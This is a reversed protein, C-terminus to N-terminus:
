VTPNLIDYGIITSVVQIIFYAAVIILLGTVAATLAGKSQAAKEGEMHGAHQIFKFGTVIVSVFAIIGAITFVNPLLINILGALSSFNNAPPFANQINVQAQASRILLLTMCPNYFIRQVFAIIDNNVRLERLNEARM